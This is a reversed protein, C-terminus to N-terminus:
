IYMICIYIHTHIYTYIYIYIYIYIYDTNYTYVCIYIYIYLSLSICAFVQFIVLPTLLQEKYCQLFSPMDVQLLNDGFREKLEEVHGSNRMGNGDLYKALPLDVPSKVLKVEGAEAGDDDSEWWEYHQRQFVFGLRTSAERAVGRGAWGLDVKESLM